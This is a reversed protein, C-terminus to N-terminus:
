QRQSKTHMTAIRSGMTVITEIGMDSANKLDQDVRIRQQDVVLVVTSGGFQFFGHEEGKITSGGATAQIEISGVCAAGVAIYAIHGFQPNEIITIHRTNQGLINTDQTMADRTVSHLDAKILRTQIIKGSVPYHFRHYDQPSLRVIIALPNPIQHYVLPDGLLQSISLSQNKINMPEDYALSLKGDAPSVLVTPDKAAVIPRLGPKIKRAFWENVNDYEEYSSKQYWTMDIQLPSVFADHIYRKKEAVTLLPRSFFAGCQQTYWQLLPEAALIKTVLPHPYLLSQLKKVPTSVTETNISQKQRDWLLLDPVEWALIVAVTSFIAVTSGFQLIGPAKRGPQPQTKISAQAYQRRQGPSHLPLTPHLSKRMRRNRLSGLILMVLIAVGATIAGILGWLLLAGIPSLAWLLLIAGRHKEGTWLFGCAWAPLVMSIVILATISLSFIRRSKDRKTNKRSIVQWDKHATESSVPFNDPKAEISNAAAYVTPATSVLLAFLFWRLLSSLIKYM